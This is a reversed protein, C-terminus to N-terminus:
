LVGKKIAEIYVEKSAPVVLLRVGPNIKRGKLIDAAIQLDDFRGNTCTGIFVQEIKINKIEDITKTNDVTHPFSVTPKIEAANIEIIKEYRVDSDAKIARFKDGRGEDELNCLTFRESM